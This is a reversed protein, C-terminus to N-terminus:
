KFQAFKVRLNVDPYFQVGTVRNSVGAYKIAHGLYLIPRQVWQGHPGPVKEVLSWYCHDKGNKFRHHAHLFPKGMEITSVKGASRAPHSSPLDAGFATKLFLM